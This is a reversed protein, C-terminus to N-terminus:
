GTSDKNSIIFKRRSNGGDGDVLEQEVGSM